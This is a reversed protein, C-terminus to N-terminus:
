GLNSQVFRAIHGRASDSLDEFFIATDYPNDQGPTEVCRVIVGTIAVAAAGSSGAKDPLELAIQVRTMLPLPSPTRLRIGSESLNVIHSDVTGDQLTLRLPLEISVRPHRRRESPQSM